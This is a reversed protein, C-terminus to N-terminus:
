SLLHAHASIEALEEWIRENADKMPHLSIRQQWKKASAVKGQLDQMAIPLVKEWDSRHDIWYVPDLGHMTQFHIFNYVKRASWHKDKVADYRIYCAPKGLTAFDIAMTSGVNVVLDCHLVTNVLLSVDSQDPIFHNWARNGEYSKWIPDLSIILHQYEQLVADYRDSWDAPCRRFIIKYKTSEQDNLQEVAEALDKLYLPDYPSTTLDDGSFCIFRDQPNLGHYECFTERSLRLADDFYPVFQPTGTIHVREQPVEPYYKAMEAKMHASWVIYHDAPITLTGKPLNDWSYIFTATPIGMDQAALMPAIALSSRQHSCFILDPRSEQLQAKCQTYYATKRVLRLYREKLEAVGQDNSKGVVLLQEWLGKILQRLSRGNFPKLYTKYVQNDFKRANRQLEATQRARRLVEIKPTSQYPPLSVVPVKLDKDQVLLGELAPECWIIAETGEPRVGLFDTYIFNRIGVGDPLLLFIHM